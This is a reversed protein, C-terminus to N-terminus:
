RCSQARQNSFGNAPVKGSMIMHHKRKHLPFSVIFDFKTTEFLSDREIIGLKTTIGPILVFHLSAFYLM